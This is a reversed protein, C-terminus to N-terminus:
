SRLVRGHCTLTVELNGGSTTWNRALGGGSDRWREASTAESEGAGPEAGDASISVGASASRARIRVADADVVLEGPELNQGNGTGSVDHGWYQSGRDAGSGSGSGGRKGNSSSDDRSINSRGFLQVVAGPSELGIYTSATVELIGGDLSLESSATPVLKGVSGPEAVKETATARPPLPPQHRPLMTPGADVNTISGIGPGDARRATEAFSPSPSSRLAIASTELSIENQAVRLLTSNGALLRVQEHTHLLPPFRPSLSRVAAITAFVRLLQLLRGPVKTCTMYNRDSAIDKQVKVQTDIAYREFILATM